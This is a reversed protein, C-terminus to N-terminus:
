LSVFILDKKHPHLWSDKNRHHLPGRDVDRETEIFFSDEIGAIKLDVVPFSRQKQPFNSSFPWRVWTEAIGNCRIVRPNLYRTKVTRWPQLRVLCVLKGQNNPCWPFVQLYSELIQTLEQVPDNKKQTTNKGLSM